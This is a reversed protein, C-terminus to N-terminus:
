SSRTADGDISVGDDADNSEDDLEKKAAKVNASAAAARQRGSAGFHPDQRRHYRRM